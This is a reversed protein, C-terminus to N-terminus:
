GALVLIWKKAQEAPFNRLLLLTERHVAASPDSNAHSLIDASLTVPSLGLFETAIRLALICFRQDIDYMAKRLLVSDGTLRGLMWLARARLIVNENQKVATKAIALADNKNMSTLKAMAM